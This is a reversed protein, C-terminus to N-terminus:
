AIAPVEADTPTAAAPVANSTIDGVILALNAGLAAGAIATLIALPSDACNVGLWAGGVGGAIAIALGTWRDVAPRALDVWGLYIGLAIPVGTSAVVLGLADIPVTRFGVLAVLAAAFWGGLGLVVPYVSRM